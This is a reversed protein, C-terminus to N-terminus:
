RYPADARREGRTELWFAVLAEAASLLRRPDEVLGPAHGLLASPEGVHVKELVALAPLLSAPVAAGDLAAYARAPIGLGPCTVEVLSRLEGKWLTTVNVVFRREEGMVTRVVVVVGRLHPGSPVLVADRELATAEWAARHPEFRRPFPQAAITGAVVQAKAKALRVIAVLDDIADTAPLRFRLSRNTLAISTASGLGELVSFLEREGFPDRGFRGPPVDVTVHLKGELERPVPRGGRLGGLLGPARTRVTVGLSPFALAVEVGLAGDEPADRIEIEVPGERGEVLVDGEGRSLGTERALYEVLRRQRADGLDPVDVEGRLETGRPLIELPLDMWVRQSWRRAIAFRLTYSVNVHGKPASAAVDPDIVFRFSLTRDDPFRARPLEVEALGFRRPAGAGTVKVVQSLVVVVADWDSDAGARIAVRGELSTGVVVAGARLSVDLVVERDFGPPSRVLVPPRVVLNPPSRIPLVFTRRPDLAWAVSLRVVLEHAIGWETGTAAEPLGRPVELTLERETAGEPLGDRLYFRYAREALVAERRGSDGEEILWAYSRYWADIVRARPIPRPAVLVLRGRVVSGATLTPADDM